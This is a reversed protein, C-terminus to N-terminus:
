VWTEKELESYRADRAFKETQYQFLHYYLGKKELLESHSGEERIKGDKLFLIKDAGKVCSLKHSIMMTVRGERKQHISEMIQMETDPDIASTIEDFLLLTANQYLARAIALKQRNGGSLVVGDSAFERTMERDLYQGDVSQELVGSDKAVTMQDLFASDRVAAWLRKSDEQGAALATINERVSLAYLNVDQNVVGLTERYSKTDIESLDIGNILIRGSDPQYVKLLLKFITSKGAGNEGAIVLQEGEKTEFSVDQLTPKTEGPYTFSVHEFCVRDVRAIKVNGDKLGRKETNQLFEDFRQKYRMINSMEPITYGIANILLSATAISVTMILLSGPQIRTGRAIMFVTLLMVLWYMFIRSNLLNLFSCFFSKTGYKKALRGHEEETERFLHLHLDTLEPFARLEKAYEKMYFLRHIYNEKSAVSTRHEDYQLNVKKRYNSIWLSFIMSLVIFVIMIPSIGAILGISMLGGLGYAIFSALNTVSGKVTDTCNEVSFIYKEYFEKNDYLWVPANGASECLIGDIYRQIKVNGFAEIKGYFFAEYFATVTYFLVLACFIPILTSFSKRESIVNYIYGIMLVDITLNRIPNIIYDVMTLIVWARSGRWALGIMQFNAKLVKRIKKM